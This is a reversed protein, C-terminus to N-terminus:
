PAKHKAKKWRLELHMNAAQSVIADLGRARAQTTDRVSNPSKACAYSIGSHVAILGAM